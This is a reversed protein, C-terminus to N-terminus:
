KWAKKFDKCLWEDYNLEVAEKIKKIAKSWITSIYNERHDIKLKEQLTARIEKNSRREKKMEVILLQQPSLNAKEIYFDLTWLM